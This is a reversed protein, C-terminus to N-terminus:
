PFSPKSGLRRALPLLPVRHPLAADAIWRPAHNAWAHLQDDISASSEHEDQLLPPFPSQDGLLVLDDSSESGCSHLRFSPRLVVSGLQNTETGAIDHSSDPTPQLKDSYPSPACELPTSHISITSASPTALKQKRPRKDKSGTPRGRKTQVITKSRQPICCTAHAWTRQKWIDRVTRENIGYEKAVLTAHSVIAPVSSDAQIRFIDIAQQETLIARGQM